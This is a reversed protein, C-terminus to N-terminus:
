SPDESEAAQQDRAMDAIRLVLEFLERIETDQAYHVHRSARTEPEPSTSHATAECYCLNWTDPDDANKTVEYWRDLVNPECGEPGDGSRVRPLHLTFYGDRQYVWTDGLHSALHLHALSRQYTDTGPDAEIPEFDDAQPEHDTSM